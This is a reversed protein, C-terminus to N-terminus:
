GTESTLLKQVLYFSVVQNEQKDTEWLRGSHWSCSVPVHTWRTRVLDRPGSVSGALSSFCAKASSHSLEHLKELLELLYTNVFVSSRGVVVCVRCPRGGGEEGWSLIRGNPQGGELEKWTLSRGM